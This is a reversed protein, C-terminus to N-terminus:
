PSEHQNKLLIDECLTQWFIRSVYAKIYQARTRRKYSRWVNFIFLFPTNWLEIMNAGNHENM